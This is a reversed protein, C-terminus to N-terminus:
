EIIFEAALTAELDNMNEAGVNKIVRYEGKDLETLDVSQDHTGGVGLHIAIEIFALDLPVVRWTGEIRKEITYHMGFFLITPGFNELTLTAESDEVDYVDQDLYMAVNMEDAPVYILSLRSDEVMGEDDLIEVRLLYHANEGEPLTGSFVNEEKTIKELYVTEDVFLEDQEYDGVLSTLQVRVSRHFEVGDAEHGIIRVSFEDGPKATGSTLGYGFEGEGEHIFWKGTPPNDGTKEALRVSSDFLGDSPFDTLMDNAEFQEGIQNPLEGEGLEWNSQSSSNASDGDGGTNITQGCGVLVFLVSIFCFIMIRYKRKRDM